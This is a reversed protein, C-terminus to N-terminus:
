WKMIKKIVATLEAAIEKHETKSPHADCGAIYQKEFVHTFLKKEGEKMLKARVENISSRLFSRLKDDAMPSTLLIIKATPYYKRLQRIFSVYNNCFTASDQVGDNQGLCVSVVDPQYRAFNWAITDGFMNINDFVQPMVIKHGCCSHMLGIGSVSSLHFQAKLIRATISGYSLWANHQDYWNKTKCPIESDDNGMGCTISNGIFEIKRKPKAAPKVLQPCRIGVLEMYGINAETNKCLVVTHKGKGKLYPVLSITDCKTKTQLRYENGDVVLEIYNHNNGWLVEDNLIIECNNGMFSFSIYVGPQWFRPLQPNSFDIRGTYQILPNDPKFFLLSQQKQASAFLVAQIFVSLLLIKRNM